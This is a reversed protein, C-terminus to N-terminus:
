EPHSEKPWLIPNIWIFISENFNTQKWIQCNHNSLDNANGCWDYLIMMESRYNVISISLIKLMLTLIWNCYEIEESENEARQYEWKVWSKQQIIERAEDPILPEKPSGTLLHSLMSLIVRSLKTQIKSKCNFSSSILFVKDGLWSQLLSQSVRELINEFKSEYLNSSHLLHHVLFGLLNTFFIVWSCNSVQLRGNERRM